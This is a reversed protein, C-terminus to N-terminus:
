AEAGMVALEEAVHEIVHRVYPLARYVEMPGSRATARELLEAMKPPLEAMKPHLGLRASLFADRGPCLDWCHGFDMGLWWVDDSEGPAPVHCIPPSCKAGYNLNGSLGLGQDCPHVGYAPHGKPVAVYGCWHGWEQHRVALCPLGAHRFDLRDPEDDWPGRAWTSKDVKYAAIEEPTM